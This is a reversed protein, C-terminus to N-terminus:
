VHARGIEEEGSVWVPIEQLDDTREAYVSTPLPGGRHGYFKLVKPNIQDINIKLESKFFNYDLRYIGDNAIQIQYWEGTSLVSQTVFNDLPGNLFFNATNQHAKPAPYWSLMFLFGPLLMIRRLNM